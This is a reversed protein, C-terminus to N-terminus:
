NKPKDELEDLEKLSLDIVYDFFDDLHELIFIIARDSTKIRKNMVVYRSIKKM